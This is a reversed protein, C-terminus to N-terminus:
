VVPSTSSCMRTGATIGLGGRIEAERRGEDSVGGPAGKWGQKRRRQFFDVRRELNPDSTVETVSEKIGRGM